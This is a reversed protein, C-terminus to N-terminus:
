VKIDIIKQIVYAGILQMLIAGALMKNGLPDTFLTMVYGPNLRWLAVFLAPPLGLLVIGSIRGEGTLAQITGFLELRQRVLRGIKDLIEALDGGTQRQLIIATGFFKLDLNPVRETMDTIADELSVGLNQAEFVKQFERGIPDDMEESVLRFGAGLSHGARLARSILELADPLQKGFKNLRSKRKFHVVLIPIGALLLATIPAIWIPAGLLIPLIGGAAGIGGCIMVLNAVSMSMDAQDLFLRLNFFQMIYAELANGEDQFGSLLGTNQEAEKGHPQGAGTLADLRMEAEESGAGRFSLAVGGVLAAIGVFVVIPIVISLM